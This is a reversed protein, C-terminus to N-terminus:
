GQDPEQEPDVDARALKAWHIREDAAAVGPLALLQNLPGQNRLPWGHHMALAQGVDESRRCRHLLSRCSMLCTMDLLKRQERGRAIMKTLKAHAAESTLWPHDQLIHRAEEPGSADLLQGIIREFQASNSLAAV